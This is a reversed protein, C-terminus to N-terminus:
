AHSGAMQRCEDACRHCAQACRQCHDHDHKACETACADCIEACVRCIDDIFQSGRSMFTVAIRCAAACDHDLRICNALDSVNPEHLCTEACHECEQSCENCADICSKHMQHSM